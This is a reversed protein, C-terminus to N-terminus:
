DQVMQYIATRSKEANALKKALQEDTIKHQAVEKLLEDYIKYAALLGNFFAALWFQMFTQALIYYRAFM